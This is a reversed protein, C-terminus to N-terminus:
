QSYKEIRKRILTRKDPIDMQAILKKQYKPDSLEYIHQNWTQVDYDALFRNPCGKNDLNKQILYNVGKLYTNQLNNALRRGLKEGKIDVIQQDDEDIFEIKNRHRDLYSIPVEGSRNRFYIRELLKCDGSVQSLACDKVFELAQDFGWEKTLMDLYNDNSGVCVVQLIQNHNHHEIVPPLQKLEKLQQFETRLKNFEDLLDSNSIGPLHPNKICIEQHKSLSRPPLVKSKCYICTFEDDLEEKVEDNHHTSSEFEKHDDVSLAEDGSIVNHNALQCPTKKKLHRELNYKKPFIYLCRPCQYKINSMNLM